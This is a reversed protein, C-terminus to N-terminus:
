ISRLFRSVKESPTEPNLAERILDDAHRRFRGRTDTARLLAKAEAIEAAALTTLADVTLRRVASRTPSYSRVELVRANRNSPVSVLDVALLEGKTVTVVGKITEKTIPMFVISLDRLTGDLMKQRALQADRDSGFAADIRLESGVYYPVARAIVSAAKMSHDLHCPVDDPLPNFAGAAIVEGDRDLSSDSARAVFGGRDTSQVRADVQSVRPDDLTPAAKAAVKARFSAPPECSDIYEELDARRIRTSGEVKV